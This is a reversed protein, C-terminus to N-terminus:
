ATMNLIPCQRTIWSMTNMNLYNKPLADAECGVGADGFRPAWYENNMDVFKVYGGYINVVGNAFNAFGEVGEKTWPTCNNDYFPCRSFAVFLQSMNYKQFAKM